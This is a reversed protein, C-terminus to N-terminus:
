VSLYKRASAFEDGLGLSAINGQAADQVARFARWQVLWLHPASLNAPTQLKESVSVFFGGIVKFDLYKEVKRFLGISEAFLG